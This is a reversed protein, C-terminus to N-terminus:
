NKRGRGRVGYKNKKSKRPKGAKRAIDTNKPRITKAMNVGKNFQGAKIRVLVLLVLIEPAVTVGRPM